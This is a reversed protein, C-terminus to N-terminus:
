HVSSPTSLELEPLDMPRDDDVGAGGFAYRAVQVPWAGTRTLPALLVETHAVWEWVQELLQSPRRARVRCGM